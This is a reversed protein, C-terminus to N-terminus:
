RGALRPDYHERLGDGLMNVGWVLVIIAVGALNATWPAIFLRTNREVLINGWTAAPPPGPRLESNTMPTSHWSRAGLRTAQSGMRSLLARPSLNRQMDLPFFTPTSMSEAPNTAPM